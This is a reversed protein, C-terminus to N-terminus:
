AEPDGFVLSSPGPPLDAGEGWKGPLFVLAWSGPHKAKWFGPSAALRGAQLYCSATARLSRLGPSASCLPLSAGWPAPLFLGESPGTCLGRPSVHLSVPGGTCWPARGALGAAGSPALTTTDSFVAGLLAGHFRNLCALGPESSGELGRFPCNQAQASGWQGRLTLDKGRGKSVGRGLVPWQAQLYSPGWTGAPSNPGM